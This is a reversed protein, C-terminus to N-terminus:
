IKAQNSVSQWSGQSFRNLYFDTVARKQWPRGKIFLRWSERVLALKTKWPAYSLGLLLRNRTIFYDQLQGGVSSSVANLHWLRADPIYYLPLGACRAKLSYALDELYLFYRDDLVGIKELVLRHILM